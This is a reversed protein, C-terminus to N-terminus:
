EELGVAKLAEAPDSYMEMRAQKGGRITWVQGLLMEVPLGTVKSRGRQRMVAVVKDDIDHIAEIEFEWADWATTWDELFRSAGEAGQYIPGELWGSFHSMDWVFDPTVIEPIFAGRARFEAYAWRVIEVNEQSM